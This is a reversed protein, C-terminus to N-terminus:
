SSGTDLIVNFSVPPTGVALSGYYSSDANQNVILNTGQGRKTITEGSHSNYKSILAERNTKAWQGWEEYSRNPNRRVLPVTLRSPAQANPVAIADLVLSALFLLTCPSLTRRALM